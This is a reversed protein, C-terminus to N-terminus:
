HSGGGKDYIAFVCDQLVLRTCGEGLCNKSKINIHDIIQDIIQDIIHTTPSLFGRRVSLGSVKPSFLLILSDVSSLPCM